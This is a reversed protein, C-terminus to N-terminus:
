SVWPLSRRSGSGKKPPKKDEKKDQQKDWCDECPIMYTTPTGVIAPEHDQKCVPCMADIALNRRTDGIRDWYIWKFHLKCKKCVFLYEENMGHLSLRYKAPIECKPCDEKKRGSDNYMAPKRPYYSQYSQYSNTNWDTRRQWKPEDYRSKLDTIVLFLVFIIFPLGCCVFESM